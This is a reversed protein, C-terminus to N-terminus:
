KANVRTRFDAIAAEVEPTMFHVVKVAEKGIHAQRIFEYVHPSNNANAIHLFSVLVAAVVDVDKSYSECCQNCMVLYRPIMEETITTSKCIQFAADIIEEKTM